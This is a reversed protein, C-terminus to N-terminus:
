KMNQDTEELVGSIEVDNKMEVVIKNGRMSKEFGDLQM